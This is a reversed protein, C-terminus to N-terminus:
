GRAPAAVMRTRAFRAAAMGAVLAATFIWPEPRGLGLAPVVGGPCYGILGWGVGYVASGAVLPMDIDKRTPLEFRDTLLPAGTAFVIRYGIATTILASGMVLALSPDWAGAIDFFNLVKAPNIMGSVTMGLGFVLGTALAAINRM